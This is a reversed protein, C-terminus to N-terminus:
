IETMKIKNLELRKKTRDIITDIVKPDAKLRGKVIQAISSFAMNHTEAIEDLDDRHLNCKAIDSLEKNLHDLKIETM